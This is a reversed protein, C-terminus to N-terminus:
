KAPSANAIMMLLMPWMLDIGGMRNEQSQIKSLEDMLISYEEYTITEAPKKLIYEVIDSAKAIIREKMIM